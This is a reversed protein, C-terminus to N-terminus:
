SLILARRIDLIAVDDENTMRASTLDRSLM